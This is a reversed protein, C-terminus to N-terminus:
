GYGSDAPWRAPRSVFDPRPDQLLFRRAAEMDPFEIVVVRGASPAGEKAEVAGGLVLFRGGHAAIVDPVLARYRAYTGPDTVEIEAALYAPPM